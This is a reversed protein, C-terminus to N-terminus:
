SKRDEDPTQLGLYRNMSNNRDDAANTTQRQLKVTTAKYVHGYSGEGIMELFRYVQKIRLTQVVYPEIAAQWSLLERRTETVIVLVSSLSEGRQSPLNSKKRQFGTEAGEGRVAPSQRYLIFGNKTVQNSALEGLQHMSSTSILKVAEYSCFAIDIEGEVTM